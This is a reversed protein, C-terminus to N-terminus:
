EQAWPSDTMVRVLSTLDFEHDRGSLCIGSSVVSLRTDVTSRYRYQQGQMSWEVIIQRTAGQTDPLESFSHLVADAKA